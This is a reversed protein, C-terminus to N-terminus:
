ALGHAGYAEEIVAALDDSFGLNASLLKYGNIGEFKAAILAATEQALKTEGALHYTTLLILTSYVTKDGIAEIQRAVELSGDLDRRGLTILGKTVTNYINSASEPSLAVAVDLHPVADDPKGTQALLRAIDGQAFHNSPSLQIARKMLPTAVDNQQRAFYHRALVLACLPDDPDLEFGRQAARMGSGIVDGSQYAWNRYYLAHATLGLGAQARAFHPDQEIARQFHEVSGSLGEHDIREALSMGVFYNQWATLSSPPQIRARKLENLSVNHEVKRAIQGVIEERMEHVENLKIQFRDRWICGNSRTDSLECVLHMRGLLVEIESSLVYDVGLAERIAAPDEGFSIHRATSGRAMVFLSRLRALATLIEDPLARDLFNEIEQAGVSKAPLVAISPQDRFRITEQVQDAITSPKLQPHSSTAVEAVFRFGRGRVTKLMEQEVGNDGIAQRVARIRVTIAADSIARGGWVADVLEDKTVLRGRSVLFHQLISLVQPTTEVRKGDRRLEFREADFESTDFSYRM